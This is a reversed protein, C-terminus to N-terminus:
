VAFAVTLHEPDLEWRVKRPGEAIKPFNNVVKECDEKLGEGLIVTLMRILLDSKSGVPEHANEWRSLVAKDSHLYSAFTDQSMGLYKRLFRIEEGMLGFPKNVIARALERMVAKPESIVPDSNGCENCKILPVNKLVLNSLGSERFLYNGTVLTAEADCNTCRHKVRGFRASRGNMM